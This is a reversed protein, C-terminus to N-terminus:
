GRLEEFWRRAEHYADPVNLDWRLWSPDCPIRRTSAAHADLLGRLGLSSEDLDMLRPCLGADLVVPHGRGGDRDPALVAEGHKVAADRLTRYLAPPRPQDISTVLVRRTRPPLARAGAALSTTKGRAPDDNLVPTGGPLRDRWSPHNHPGLVIVPHWSAARLHACTWELLTRGELWPLGAKDRGMRRSAGAALVIAAYGAPDSKM